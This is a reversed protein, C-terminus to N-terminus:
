YSFKCISNLVFWGITGPSSLLRSGSLSFKATSIMAAWVALTIWIRTVNLATVRYFDERIPLRRNYSSPVPSGGRRVDPRVCAM